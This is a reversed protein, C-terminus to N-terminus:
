MHELLLKKVDDGMPQHQKHKATLDADEKLAPKPDAGHELSIKVADFYSKITATVCADTADGGAELLIKLAEMDRRDIATVLNPNPDAGHRLLARVAPINHHYVAPRLPPGALGDVDTFDTLKILGGCKGDGNPDYQYKEVFHDIVAAVKTSDEPQYFPVYHLPLSRSPDAGRSVLYDFIEPKGAAAAENLVAVTKDYEGKKLGGRILDQHWNLEVGQDVLWDLIDRHEFMRRSMSDAM